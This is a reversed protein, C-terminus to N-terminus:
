GACADIMQFSNPWRDGEDGEYLSGAAIVRLVRDPDEHMEVIPDHQHGHLLLDVNDALLRWCRDGDALFGLPHHVLCLRFGPLADGEDGCTLMDIQRDTLLLKGQDSDDGALWASDLGIITM